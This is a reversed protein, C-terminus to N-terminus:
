GPRTFGTLEVLAAAPARPGVFGEALGDEDIRAVMEALYARSARRADDARPDDAADLVRVCTVFVQAPDVGGEVGRVDLWPLLEEVLTVAEDLHGQALAAAALGATCERQMTHLESIAKEARAQQLEDVARAPQGAALLTLGHVLRGRAVVIPVGARQALEIGETVQREADADHGESADILALAYLSNAALYDYGIENAVVLAQAMRARVEELEGSFRALEGLATHASGIGERDELETSLRM